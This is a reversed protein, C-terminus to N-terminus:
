KGRGAKSAPVDGGGGGAAAGLPLTGDDAEDAAGAGSHPAAKNALYGAHSIGLLTVMGEGLAPFQAIVTDGELSRGLLLGYTALLIITFYFMQVKGLDLLAANGVEEGRFLDSLRADAPSANVLVQGRNQKRETIEQEEVGEAAALVTVLQQKEAQSPKKARKNSLILPSGVLSATSIGMLAWLEGPIAITLAASPDAGAALNHFVATFLASLVVVTWAVLQFRALSMANREGILLGSLRGTVGHGLLAALVTLLVLNLLWGWSGGVGYGVVIMLVVIAVLGVTHWRIWGTGTAEDAM